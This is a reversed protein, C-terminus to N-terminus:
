SSRTDAGDRGWTPPESRHPSFQEGIRELIWYVGYGLAAVVTPPIVFPACFAAMLGARFQGSWLVSAAVPAVATGVLLWGNGVVLGIVFLVIGALALATWLWASVPRTALRTRYAVATWMLWRRIWPEGVAHLMQRFYEDALVDTMGSTGNTDVPILRDHILAAPTHWGHSDVFWRLPGPVSALDTELMEGSEIVRLGDITESSLHDDLGTPGLYEVRSDVRFTTANMQALRIFSEPDGTEGFRFVGHWPDRPRDHNSTDPRM